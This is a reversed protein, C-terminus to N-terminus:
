PATPPSPAKAHARRLTWSAGVGVFIVLPIAFAAGGLAIIGVVAPIGLFVSMGLVRKRAFNCGLRHQWAGFNSGCEPCRGDRSYSRCAALVSVPTLDPDRM